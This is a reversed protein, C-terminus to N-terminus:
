QVYTVTIWFLFSPFPEHKLNGTANKVQALRPAPCLLPEKRKKGLTVVKFEMLLDDPFDSTDRTLISVIRYRIVYVAQEYLFM